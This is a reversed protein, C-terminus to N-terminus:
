WSPTARIASVGGWRGSWAALYERCAGTSITFGPPVSLGLENAMVSINAAKSGILAAVEAAPQHFPHDFAYVYSV